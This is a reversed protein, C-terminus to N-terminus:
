IMRSLALLERRLHRIDAQLESPTCGYGRVAATYSHTEGKADQWFRTREVPSIIREEVNEMMRLCMGAQRAAAGQKEISM